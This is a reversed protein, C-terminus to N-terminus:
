FDPHTSADPLPPHTEVSYGLRGYAEHPYLEWFASNFDVDNGSTLRGRLEDQSVSPFRDFWSNVLRRVRDFAADDIRDLFSFTSEGSRSPAPDDRLRSEFVPM